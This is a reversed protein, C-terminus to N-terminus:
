RFKDDCIGLELGLIWPFELGFSLFTQFSHM